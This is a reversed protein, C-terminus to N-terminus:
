SVLWVKSPKGDKLGNQDDDTAMFMDPFNKNNLNLNEDNGMTADTRLKKAPPNGESMSM